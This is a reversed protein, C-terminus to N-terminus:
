CRGSRSAMYGVISDVRPPKAECGGAAGGADGELTRYQITDNPVAIWSGNVLM